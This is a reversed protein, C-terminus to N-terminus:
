AICVAGGVILAAVAGGLAIKGWNVSSGDIAKLGIKPSGM